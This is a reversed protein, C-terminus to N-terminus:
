RAGKQTSYLSYGNGGGAVRGFGKTENFFKVTGKKMANPSGGPWPPNGATSRLGLLYRDDVINVMSDILSDFQSQTPKDGLAFYGKLVPRDVIVYLIGGGGGGNSDTKSSTKNSRSSNHDQAKTGGGGSWPNNGAFGRGNGGDKITKVKGRTARGTKPDYYSLSDEAYPDNSWRLGSRESHGYFYLLEEDWRMGHFLFPNGLSSATVPLGDSGTLPTGDAGLFQPQGYDEYDYREVVVGKADTLALVNGLDDTHIYYDQDARRMTVCQGSQCDGVYEATVAGGSREEIVSDGDYLFTTTVAPTSAYVTKAVRRGLADYAYTAVPVGTDTVAVLRDLCDYTYNM